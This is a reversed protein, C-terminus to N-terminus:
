LAFTISSGHFKITCTGFYIRSASKVDALHSALTSAMFCLHQNCLVRTEINKRLRQPCKLFATINAIPQM